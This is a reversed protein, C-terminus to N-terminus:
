HQTPPTFPNRLLRRNSAEITLKSAPQDRREIWSPHRLDRLAPRAIRMAWEIPSGWPPVGEGGSDPYAHQKIGKSPLLECVVIM